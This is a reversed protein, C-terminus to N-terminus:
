MESLEFGYRGHSCSLVAVCGFVGADLLPALCKRKFIDARSSAHASCILRVGAGHASLLAEAESIDAVEDTVIVEASMTRYAVEIGVARRYGRLIDVGSDGYDNPDFECREDVAVVRVQSRGRGIYGVLSRLATTKGGLPPAIVLMNPMGRGRWARYLEEAFGCEAGGVRFVLSSVEGVGMSDGDYRAVGSVGVRMGSVVIYGRSVSERHAYVAGGSLRSLTDELEGFSVRYFLPYGVGHVIISSIGDARLRIESIGSDINRVSRGIESIELAVGRPLYTLATQFRSTKSIREQREKIM